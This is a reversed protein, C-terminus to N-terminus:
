CPVDTQFYYVCFVKRGERCYGTLAQDGNVRREHKSCCDILKRVRGGCCRFWSDDVQVRLGYREPVADLCVHSRPAPPLPRGDFDRLVVGADDVPLGERNILRGLDDVRRGDTGRIPLGKSDVRPLGTPHPCSGTTYIHGCFHHADSEESGIGLLTGAGIAGTMFAGLRALFGRRSISQAAADSLSYEDPM